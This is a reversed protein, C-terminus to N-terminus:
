RGVGTAWAARAPRQDLVELYARETTAAVQEWTYRALVRDRGAAGFAEPLTRSRLLSRLAAGLLDPRRPPVHLGTVGHVVTDQMGGVASAVVARACAMAELPVLGFPEYWPACVIADASRLLAPVHARPVAGLFGVRHAVGHRVALQRLRVTDPDALVATSEAAGGAVLLEAEPVKALAAVVEDVGKRRVLRGISVLRPREGRRAVPGKPAFEAADVGCPIVSVRARPAGMRILEFREDECTAIVRDARRAILREAPIRGEPSTDAAGQHRRKVAGLAHFTQVFPVPVGQLAATAALGSMWFHAHVIDPPDTRWLEELGRALEPVHRVIEDKPLLRAPGAPIHRVVVGPCLAVLEPRDPEDRRTLVTVEHGRAALARSLEGVHVNQGGSDPGGPAALPSAHESVMTIRM